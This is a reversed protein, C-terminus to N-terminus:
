KIRKKYRKAAQTLARNPKADAADLLAMFAKRDSNSLVTTQSQQLVAQSGKVLTAIAFDSMSQGMATAAQEIVAKLDTPLRFNIRAEKTNENAM